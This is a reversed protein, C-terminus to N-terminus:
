KRRKIGDIGIRRGFSNCSYNHIFFVIFQYLKSLEKKKYIYHNISHIVEEWDPYYILGLTTNLKPAKPPVTPKKRFSITRSLIGDDM